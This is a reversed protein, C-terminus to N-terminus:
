GELATISSLMQDINSEFTLVGNEPCEVINIVISKWFDVPYAPNNKYYDVLKDALKRSEIYSKGYNHKPNPFENAM